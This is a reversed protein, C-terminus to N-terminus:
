SLLLDYDDLKDNYKLVKRKVKSTETWTLLDEMSRTVLFAPDTVADPGIRVHGQEVLGCAERVSEAMHLRVLTVALRRSPHPRPPPPPPPFSPLPPPHNHPPRSFLPSICLRPFPM